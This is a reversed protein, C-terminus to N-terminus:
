PHGARKELAEALNTEPVLPIVAVLTTGQPGSKIELTGGYHRLRERMGPIGIGFGATSIHTNRGDPAPMGCGTDEITVVLQDNRKEFLIRATKSGSHRMINTLGEQVVRFLDTEMETPLRGIDEPLNLLVAIDTRKTFGEAYWELAGILGFEDLMPPHLLYSLTRIEKQSQECLTQCESLISKVHSDLAGSQKVAALNLGIAALNQGTVDHLERAIRRREEDQISLLRASLEQLEMEALKFRTIDTVAGLIQKPKGDPTRNFITATRQVWRWQGNKHRMRFIHEFVEGDQRRAYEAGLRPLQSADDPHMLTSIFNGGMEEIEKPTYGIIDVSRENAYVNRNEVLDYVFLVNPTTLALRQAFRQSEELEATAQRATTINRIIILFNDGGFTVARAEYFRVQGSASLSYEVLSTEGTNSLAMSNLILKAPEPGLVTELSSGVASEPSVNVDCVDKAHISQIVGRRDLVFILDPLASLITRNRFESDRLALEWRRREMEASARSAFINLITEASNLNKLPSRSMVAMVGLPQGTSSTLAVGLYSELQLEALPGDLAFRSQVGHPCSCRGVSLAEWCPTGRLKYEVRDLFRDDAFLAVTQIREPDAGDIEGICAFDTQLAMCLHQALLRFFADGTAVSVGTAINRLLADAEKRETVDLAIGTLRDPLGKEDRIVKGQNRIWIVGGDPKVMQFDSTYPEAINFGHEILDAALARELYEQTQEDEFSGSYEVKGTTLNYEWAVMRAADLATRLRASSKSLSGDNKEL